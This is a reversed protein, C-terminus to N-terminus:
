TKESCNLTLCSAPYLAAFCEAHCSCMNVLQNNVLWYSPCSDHLKINTSVPVSAVHSKQTCKSKCLHAGVLLERDCFDRLTLILDEYTCKDRDVILALSYSQIQVVGIEKNNKRRDSETVHVTSSPIKLQHHSETLICEGHRTSLHSIAAEIGRKDSGVSQQSVYDFRNIKDGKVRQRTLKARIFEVIEEKPVRQRKAGQSDFVSLSEVSELLASIQKKGFKVQKTDDENRPRKAAM